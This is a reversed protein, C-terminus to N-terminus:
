KGQKGRPFWHLLVILPRPRNADRNLVLRNTRSRAVNRKPQGDLFEEETLVSDFVPTGYHMPFIYEKPHLQKVVKQAESGNLTYIGGVPIMLVDVDGIAKIQKRDLLHGLDGLHAIKWGDAEIIFVTNIGRQLGKMNDHYTGVSRIHVDKIKKDVINWTLRRGNAKWGRIVEVKDKNALIGVQTHDNHNHSLLAIDAKLNLPRGYESIAHPDLVITTGKSTRIEFFSHGHYRIELPKKKEQAQATTAALLILSLLALIKKM